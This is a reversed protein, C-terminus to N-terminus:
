IVGLVILQVFRWLSVDQKADVNTVRDVQNPVEINVADLTTDQPPGPDSPPVPNTGDAHVSAPGVPIGLVALIVALVLYGLLTALIPRTKV